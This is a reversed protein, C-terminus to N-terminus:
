DKGLSFITSIRDALKEEGVERLHKVLTNKNAVKKDFTKLAENAEQELREYENHNEPSSNVFVSLDNLEPYQETLNNRKDNAECLVKALNVQEQITPEQELGEMYNENTM